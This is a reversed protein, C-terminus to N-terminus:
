VLPIEPELAFISTISSEGSASVVVLRGYEDVDVANGTVAEGSALEVSVKGNIVICDRKWCQVFMNPDKKLNEEFEAVISDLMEDLDLEMGIVDKISVAIDCLEDPIRNNVNIGLGLYFLVESESVECELLIGGVKKSSLVLDDPWKFKLEIGYSEM